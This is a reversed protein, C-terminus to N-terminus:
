SISMHCVGHILFITGIPEAGNQPEALIYSYTRGNVDASKYEVRSDNVALKDSM